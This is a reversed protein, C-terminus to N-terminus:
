TGEFTSGDMDLGGVKAGRLRVNGKFTARDRLFLTATPACGKPPLIEVCSRARLSLLGALHAGTLDLNGEIRSAEISLDGRVDANVLDLDGEIRAGQIRLGHRGIRERLRPVTLVDTVFSAPIKRCADDWGADAHSDLRTKGSPDCRLNLDAVEDRKIRAWAWGEPPRTTTM